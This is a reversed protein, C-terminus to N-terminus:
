ARALGPEFRPGYHQARRGAADSNGATHAVLGKAQPGKRHKCGLIFLLVKM